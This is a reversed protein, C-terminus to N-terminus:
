VLENCVPPPLFNLSGATLAPRHQTTATPLLKAAGIAFTVMVPILRCTEVASRMLRLRASPQYTLSADAEDAHRRLRIPPSGLWSSGTKAKPPAASLVAVLGDDPVRRGPQTIGSNGLFARKGVSAKAIHIWGGGLEYSAVMTDDALFAGSGVRVFPPIMLVTSAEVDSGIDAGLAAAFHLASCPPLSLCPNTVVCHCHCLEPSEARFLHSVAVSPHDLYSIYTDLM